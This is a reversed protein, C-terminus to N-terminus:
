LEFSARKLARVGAYAKTIGDARLLPEVKSNVALHAFSAFSRCSIPRRARPTRPPLVRPVTLGGCLRWGGHSTDRHHVLGRRQRPLGGPVGGGASGGGTGAAAVRIARREVARLEAGGAGHAQALGAH